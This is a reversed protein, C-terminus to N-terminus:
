GGQPQQAYGLMGWVCAEAEGVNAVGHHHLLVGALHPKDALTARMAAQWRAGHDHMGWSFTSSPVIPNPM